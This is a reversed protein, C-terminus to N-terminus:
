RDVNTRLTSRKGKRLRPFDSSSGFGDLYCKFSESIQINLIYPLGSDAECSKAELGGVWGSHADNLLPRTIPSTMIPQQQLLRKKNVHLYM